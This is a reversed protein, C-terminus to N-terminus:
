EQPQSYQLLKLKKSLNRQLEKSMPETTETADSERRKILQITAETVYCAITQKTSNPTTDEIIDSYNLAELQTGNTIHSPVM